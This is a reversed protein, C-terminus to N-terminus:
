IRENRKIDPNYQIGQNAKLLDEGAKGAKDVGFLVGILTVILESSTLKYAVVLVISAIIATWFGSSKWLRKM